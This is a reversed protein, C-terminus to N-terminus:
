NRASGGSNVPIRTQLCSNSFTKLLSGVLCMSSTTGRIISNGVPPIWSHRACSNLYNLCSPQGEEFLPKEPVSLPEFLSCSTHSTDAAAMGGGSVDLRNKRSTQPPPSKLPSFGSGSNVRLSTQTQEPFVAPLLFPPLPGVQLAREILSM